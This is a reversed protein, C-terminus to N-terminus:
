GYKFITGLNVDVERNILPFRTYDVAVINKVSQFWDYMYIHLLKLIAPEKTRSKSNKKFM